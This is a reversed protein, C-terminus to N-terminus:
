AGAPLQGVMVTASLFAAPWITQTDPLPVPGAHVSAAYLRCGEYVVPFSLQQLVMAVANAIQGAQVQHAGFCIFDMRPDAVYFMETGFQTYGGAPRVVVAALPMKPDMIAPLDPRFVSPVGALQEFGPLGSPIPDLLSAVQANARLFACMAALPDPLLVTTVGDVGVGDASAEM